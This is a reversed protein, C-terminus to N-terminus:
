VKNKQMVSNEIMNSISNTPSVKISDYCIGNLAGPVNNKIDNILINIRKVERHYHEYNKLIGEIEERNNGM